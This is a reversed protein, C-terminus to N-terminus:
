SVWAVAEQPLMPIKYSCDRAKKFGHRAELETGNLIADVIAECTNVIGTEVLSGAIIGVEYAEPKWAPATPQGPAVVVAGLAENGEPYIATVTIRWRGPENSAERALRLSRCNRRITGLPDTKTKVSTTITM